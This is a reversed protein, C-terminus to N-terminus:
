ISGKILLHSHIYVCQTYITYIYIFISHIQFNWFPYVNRAYQRRKQSHSIIFHCKCTWLDSSIFPEEYIAHLLKTGAPTLCLEPHGSQATPSGPQLLGQKPCQWGGGPRAAGARAHVANHRCLSQLARLVLGLEQSKPEQQDTDM